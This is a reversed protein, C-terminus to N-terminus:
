LQAAVEVALHAAAEADAVREGGVAGVPEAAVRDEVAGGIEAQRDGALPLRALRALLAVVARRAAAADLEAVLEGARGVAIVVLVRALRIRAAGAALHAGRQLRALPDAGAGRRASGVTLLLQPGRDRRRPARSTEGPTGATGPARPP